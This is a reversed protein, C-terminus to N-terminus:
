SRRSNSVKCDSRIDNGLNEEKGAFSGRNSNLLRQEQQQVLAVDFAFPFGHARLKQIFACERNDMSSLLAGDIKGLLGLM